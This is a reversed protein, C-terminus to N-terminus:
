PAPPAFARLHTFRGPFLLGLAEVTAARNILWTGAVYTVAGAAVLVAFSPAVPLNGLQQRLAEVVAFMAAAATM